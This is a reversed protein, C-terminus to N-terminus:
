LALWIRVGVFLLLWLINFSIMTWGAAKNRGKVLQGGTILGFLAAALGIYCVAICVPSLVTCVWASTIQGPSVGFQPSWTPTSRPYFNPNHAPSPMSYPNADPPALPPQPIFSLAPLARAVIQAGTTADQLLTQPALRGEQIWQNLTTVSAPGYKQGDPSIVFYEM